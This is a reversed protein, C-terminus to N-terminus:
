DARLAVADMIRLRYRLLFVAQKINAKDADTNSPGAVGLFRESHM